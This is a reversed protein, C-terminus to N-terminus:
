TVCREDKDCGCNGRRACRGGRGRPPNSCWPRRWRRPARSPSRSWPWSSRWWSWVRLWPVARPCWWSCPLSSIVRQSTLQVKGNTVKLSRQHDKTAKPSRQDGKIFRTIRSNHNCTSLCSLQVLSTITCSLFNSFLRMMARFPLEYRWMKWCIHISRKRLINITVLSRDLLLELIIHLSPVSRLQGLCYSM